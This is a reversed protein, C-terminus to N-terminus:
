DSWRINDPRSGTAIYRPLAERAEAAPVFYRRPVDSPEGMFNIVILTDDAWPGHCGVGRPCQTAAVYALHSEESGVTLVLASNATGLVQIALPMNDSRAQVALQDILHMLEALTRFDAREGTEWLV